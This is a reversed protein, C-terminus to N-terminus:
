GVSYKALLSDVLLDAWLDREEEDQFEFRVGAVGAKQDRWMVDALVLVAGPAITKLRAPVPGRIWQPLHDVLAGGIGLNVCDAFRWQEGDHLELSVGDPTPWRRAERRGAGGQVHLMSAPEAVRLRELLLMAEEQRLLITEVDDDDKM